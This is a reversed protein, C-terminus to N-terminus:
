LKVIADAMRPENLGKAAKRTQFAGGSAEEAASSEVPVYLKMCNVCTPTIANAPTVAFKLNACNNRWRLPFASTARRTSRAHSAPLRNNPLWSVQIKRGKM